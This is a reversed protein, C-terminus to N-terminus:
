APRRRRAWCGSFSPTHRLWPRTLPLGATFRGEPALVALTACTFSKRSSKKKNRCYPRQHLDLAM